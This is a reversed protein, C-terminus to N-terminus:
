KKEILYRELSEVRQRVQFSRVDDSGDDLELFRNYHLLAREFGGLNDFCLAVAFHSPAHDPRLTVYQLLVVGANQWDEREMYIAALTGWGEVRGPEINMARQIALEARESMDMQYYARGLTYWYDSSESNQEALREFVAAAEAYMENAMYAEALAPDADDLDELIAIAESLQEQNRLVRALRLRIDTDGPALEAAREYYERATDLNERDSEIDGAAVFVAPAASGLGIAVILERIAQDTDNMDRYIFGLREHAEVLEPEIDLVVLYAQIAEDIRDSQDLLQAKYLAPLPDEPRLLAADAFEGIAEGSMGNEHLLIALNMRAEFISPDETLMARYSELARDTQGDESLSVALNFLSSLHSPDELLVAELKSIAETWHEAEMAVIAEAYLGELPITVEVAATQIVLILLLQIIM